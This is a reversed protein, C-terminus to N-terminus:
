NSSAGLNEQNRFYRIREDKLAFSRCIAETQDTSANDSIILEFDEFTQSLISEIAEQIYNEGNYVPLGISVKQKKFSVSLNRWNLNRISYVFM